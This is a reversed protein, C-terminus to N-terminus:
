EVAEDDVLAGDDDTDDENGIREEGDDDPHADGSTRTFPDGEGSMRSVTFPPEEPPLM